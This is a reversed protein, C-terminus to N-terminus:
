LSRSCSCTAGTLFLHTRRAFASAEFFCCSRDRRDEPFDPVWGRDDPADRDDRVTVRARRTVDVTCDGRAEAFARVDIVRKQASPELRSVVVGELERLLAEHEREAVLSSAHGDVGAERLLLEFM